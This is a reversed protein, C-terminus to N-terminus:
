QKAKISGWAPRQGGSQSMSLQSDGPLHLSSFIGDLATQKSSRHSGGQRESGNPCTSTKTKCDRMSWNPMLNTIYGLIGKLKRIM